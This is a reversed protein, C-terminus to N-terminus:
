SSKKGLTARPSGPKQWVLTERPNSLNKAVFPGVQTKSSKEEGLTWRETKYIKMVLPDKRPNPLNKTVLHEKETKFIEKDGFPGGLIECTQWGLTGMQSKCTRTVCPESRPNPLNRQWGFTGVKTKCPQWGIIRGQIELNKWELTGKQLKQWGVTKEQTECTKTVWTDGRPKLTNKYCFPGGNHTSFKKGILAKKSKWTKDDSLSISCFGIPSVQFLELSLRPGKTVFFRGFGIPSEQIDFVLFGFPHGKTFFDELGLPFGQTVFFQSVWHPVSSSSFDELSLFPDKTIFFVEM